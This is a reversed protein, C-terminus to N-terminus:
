PIGPVTSGYSIYRSVYEYCICQLVFDVWTDAVGTQKFDFYEKAKRYTRSAQGTLMVSVSDKSKAM